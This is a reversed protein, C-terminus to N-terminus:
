SCVVVERLRFYDDEVPYNAPSISYYSAFEQRFASPFRYDNRFEVGLTKGEADAVPEGERVVLRGRKFVYVPRSFMAAVDEQKRYLVVDADAGVGLHGKGKLGLARAPGARTTIVVEELSYARDLSALQTLRRVGAPLRELESRRYDPDMLLRIIEPYVHFPAGNPHDTTLFMQWPNVLLLLELGVAWQVANVLANRRYVMPVVGSGTELELDCSGWKGGTLRYLSYELPSDATMTAAPGFMVQGVDATFEPHENLFEAVSAAGSRFRGKKNVDYSHFQLHAFHARRGALARMTELTTTVNGARGIDNAHIHVPHPLGLDEAVEVLALLIDRPTIEFPPVPTDLTVAGRGWKWNEVGGPNVVKVAYGGAARLLWGVLEKLLGRDGTKIAKMVFYNNGMLVYCGKDVLPLDALEEHVHRAKLPPVSAEFVTTYGLGAYRYGTVFISPVTRGTGSRFDRRRRVPHAYHDEPLLIRGSTVKPGAIHSHIEVAGPTVILGTADLVECRRDPSPPPVIKGGEIFLDGVRGSPGNAPDIILGNAIRLV